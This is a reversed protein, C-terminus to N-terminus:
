SWAGVTGVTNSGIPTLRLRSNALTVPAAGPAASFQYRPIFTGAANVRVTGFLRITYHRQSAVAGGLATATAVSSWGSSDSSFTETTAMDSEYMYGISTLTATGEFLVSLTASTTGTTHIHYIADLLYTTSAAVTAAGNTSENFVKQATNVDSGTYDATQAIILTGASGLPSWAWGSGNPQCAQVGREDAALAYRFDVGATPLTDYYGPAVMRGDVMRLVSKGPRWFFDELWSRLSM